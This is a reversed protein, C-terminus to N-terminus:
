NLAGIIPQHISLLICHSILSQESVSVINYFTDNLQPQFVTGIMYNNEYITNCFNLYHGILYFANICVVNWRMSESVLYRCASLPSSEATPQSLYEVGSIVALLVLKTFIHKRM